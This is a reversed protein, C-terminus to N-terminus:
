PPGKLAVLLKLVSWGALWVATAFLAVMSNIRELINTRLYEASKGTVTTV